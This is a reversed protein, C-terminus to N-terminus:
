EHNLYANYSQADNPSLLRAFMHPKPIFFATGVQGVSLLHKQLGPPAGKMTRILGRNM